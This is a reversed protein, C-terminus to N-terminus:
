GEFGIDRHTGDCFPKTTSGGCRCLAVGQSSTQPEFTDSEMTYTGSLIAPGDKMMKIILKDHSEASAEPLKSRDADTDAKFEDKEHSNDCLPGNGTAGCRCIAARTDELLTNGEHDQIEIDGYFYVPGDKELSVRNKSPAKETRDANLMEYQLAGTPCTEIVDAVDGASAKDPQIWPKKNPDFVSPLGDVCKAAHICRKLDYTVKIDDGDYTLIKEKMIYLNSKTELLLASEGTM